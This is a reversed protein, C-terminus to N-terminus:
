QPPGHREKVEEVVQDRPMSALSPDDRIREDAMQQAIDDALFPKSPEVQNYKPSKVTVAGECAWGRKECVRQVDGKGSVWAEPDGPYRALGSMYVKGSPDQGGARAVGALYDGMEPRGSFQSGNCHSHLFTNDTNLSPGSRTAFMEALSHSTGSERCEEYFSQVAPDNSVKPWQPGEQTALGSRRNESTPM